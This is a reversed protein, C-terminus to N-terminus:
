VGDEVEEELIIGKLRADDQILQELLFTAAQWSVVLPTLEYELLDSVTVLDQIATAEAIDLLHRHMRQSKEALTEDEVQIAGLDLTFLQRMDEFSQMVMSCAELGEELLTLAERSQGVTLGGAVKVFNEGISPLLNRAGELISLALGHIGVARIDLSEHQDLTSSGLSTEGDGTLEEGDLSLRTIALQHESMFKRIEDLLSGIDACDGPGLLGPQGNIRIELAATVM